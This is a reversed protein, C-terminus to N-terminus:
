QNPLCTKICELREKEEENSWGPFLYTCTNKCNRVEKVEPPTEACGTILVVLLLFPLFKM